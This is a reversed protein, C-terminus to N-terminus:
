GSIALAERSTAVIRLRPCVGLLRDALQAVGAILHECNDLVIIAEREALVDLLRELGDRVVTGAREPLAAERLGLADLVAPVIEAEATVPALEVMWVGDEVREVWGAVAERALRTKGAGGPGLLTVLRSRGLLEGIQEIERERGVFSTVPAPLNSRARTRPTAEAQLVAMHAAQLEPSPPVGLDDALQVRVREYAALAEAQRGAAFLAAILQGALRENLPHQASLAELESALRDGRGLALDADIRDALATVRLDDLRAAAQAAFRYDSLDALAPGRWLELAETLVGAAREHDGAARAASGAGALTEFRQADVEVDLRYGGPAPAVLSGNGLARRLRSVLSQLAHVQDAPPDDEWLADVLRGTSVPRGADLALCALLARLRGGAVAVRSGDQEVELPGLVGVLM